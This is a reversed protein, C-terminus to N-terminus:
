HGDEKELEPWRRMMVPKTYAVRFGRREMNRQSGSGPMTSVVAYECGSQAAEWLRRRILATQVGRRRFEPLTATGFLAVIGAERMICAMGGGAAVGDVRALYNISEPMAAFPTFINDPLPGFEAFGQAVVDSWVKENAANVRELTLGEPLAVPECDDLRRILVSNFETIRYGRPALLERLSPDALPSVVIECAVGRSRYFEEVRDLDTEIVPGYLGMGVIHNAPYEVGGFVATGGAIVELAADPWFRRLAEVHAITLTEAAELRRAFTLDVFDRLDTTSASRSTSM